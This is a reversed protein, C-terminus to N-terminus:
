RPAERALAAVRRARAVSARAEDLAAPRDGYVTRDFLAALGSFEHALGAVSGPPAALRSALEANTLARGRPVRGADELGALAALLAHRIAGAADGRSLAEEARAASADALPLALAAHPPRTPAGARARRRRRLAAVGLAAGAAAAALLVARGVSAYREAEASGLLELVAEWARLLARRLAAPDIRARRLEPRALVADLAARDAASAGAVRPEAALACHRELAVRFAAAAPAAGDPDREAALAADAAAQRVARSPVGPAAAELRAAIAPAERALRAPDGAAAAESLAAPCGAALALALLGTV